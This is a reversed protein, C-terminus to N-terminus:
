KRAKAPKAPEPQMLEREMVTPERTVAPERIQKPGMVRIPGTDPVPPQWGCKPCRDAAKRVHGCECKTESALMQGVPLGCRYCQKVGGVSRFHTSGCLRCAAVAEVHDSTAQM